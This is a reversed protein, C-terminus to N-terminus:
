ARQIRQLRRLEFTEVVVGGLLFVLASYYVWVVFLILAGATADVGAAGFQAAEQLYLGYLRKAVEFAAAMLSAALLAGQWPMRRTSAYRYLFFFLAILFAFGLFEGGVRLLPSLFEEGFRGKSYAQVWSLGFTLATNVLVLLVTMLVM